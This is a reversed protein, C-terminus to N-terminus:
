LADHKTAWGYKAMCAKIGQHLSINKDARAYADCEYFAAEAPKTQPVGPLPTATFTTSCGVVFLFLLAIAKPMPISRITAIPTAYGLFKQWRNHALLETGAL